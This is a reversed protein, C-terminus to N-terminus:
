ESAREGERERERERWREKNRLRTRINPQLLSTAPPRIITRTVAEEQGPNLRRRWVAETDKDPIIPRMLKNSSHFDSM